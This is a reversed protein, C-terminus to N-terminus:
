FCTIGFDSIIKKTENEELTVVRFDKARSYISIIGIGAKLEPPIDKILEEIKKNRKESLQSTLDVNERMRSLTMNSSFRDLNNTILSDLLFIEDLKRKNQYIDFGFLTKFEENYDVLSAFHEEPCDTANESSVVLLYKGPFLKEITYNGQLDTTAQFKMKGRISDLSYLTVISGADAKNGVYNNYKWFANGTIVGYEGNISKPNSYNVKLDKDLYFVLTMKVRVKESNEISYIHTMKYLSVEKTQSTDPRKLTDLSLFSISEYSKPNKLNEKLFNAIEKQAIETPSNSCSIFFASILLLFIAPLTKM